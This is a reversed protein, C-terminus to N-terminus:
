EGGDGSRVGVPRRGRGGSHGSQDSNQVFEGGVMKKGGRRSLSGWTGNRFTTRDRDKTLGREEGAHEVM